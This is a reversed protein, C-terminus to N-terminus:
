SITNIIAAVYAPSYESVGAKRVADPLLEGDSPKLRWARELAIRPIRRQKSTRVLRITVGQETVEDVFFGPGDSTPIRQGVLAAIRTWITSDPNV